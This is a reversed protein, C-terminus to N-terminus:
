WKAFYGQTSTVNAFVDYKMVRIQRNAPKTFSIWLQANDSWYIPVNNGYNQTFQYTKGLENNWETLTFQSTVEVNGIMLKVTTPSVYTTGLYTGVFCRVFVKMVTIAGTISQIPSPRVTIFPTVDQATCMWGPNNLPDGSKPMLVNSPQGNGFNTSAWVHWDNHATLVQGATYVPCILQPLISTQIYSQNLAIFSNWVGQLWESMGRMSSPPPNTPGYTWWTYIGAQRSYNYLGLMNGRYSQWLIDQLGDLTEAATNLVPKDQPTAADYLAIIRNWLADLSKENLADIQIEIQTIRVQLDKILSLIDSENAPPPGM